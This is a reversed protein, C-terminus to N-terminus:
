ENGPRRRQGHRVNRIIVTDGSVTYFTLYPFPGVPVVPFEAIRAVVQEIRLVVAKAAVPSEKSIYDHIDNIEALATATFRLKM